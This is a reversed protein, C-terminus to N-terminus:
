IPDSLATIQTSEEKAKKYSLSRSDCKVVFLEPLIWNPFLLACRKRQWHNLGEPPNENLSVSMLQDKLPISGLMPDSFLILISLVFVTANM